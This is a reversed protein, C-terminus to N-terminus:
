GQEDESRGRLRALLRRDEDLDILARIWPLEALRAYICLSLAAGVIFSISTALGAGVLGM